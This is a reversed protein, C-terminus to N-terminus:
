HSEKFSFPDIIEPKSEIKKTEKAKAPPSGSQVQQIEEFLRASIKDAETLEAPTLQTKLTDRVTTAETNGEASSLSYYAYASSLNKKISVGYQYMLGLSYLAKAHGQEAAKKYWNFAEQPNKPTGQGRDSMVGLNFQADADSQDAAKKFWNFAETYNQPTGDGYYYMIGVNFQSKKDGKSALQKNDNFTEGPTKGAEAKTPNFISPPSAAYSYSTLLLFLMLALYFMNLYKSLPLTEKFYPLTNDPLINM